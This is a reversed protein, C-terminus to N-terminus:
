GIISSRLMPAEGADVDATIIEKAGAATIAEEEEAGINEASATAAMRVGTVEKGAAEEAETLDVRWEETSHVSLKTRSVEHNLRM